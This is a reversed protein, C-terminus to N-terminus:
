EIWGGRIHGAVLRGLVEGAVRRVGELRQGAVLLSVNWGLQHFDDPRKGLLHGANAIAQVDRHRAGELHLLPLDVASCRRRVPQDGTPDEVGAQLGHSDGDRATM